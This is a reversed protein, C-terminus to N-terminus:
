FLQIQWDVLLTVEKTISNLPLSSVKFLESDLFDIRYGRVIDAIVLGNKLKSWIGTFLAFQGSTPTNKLYKLSTVQKNSSIYVLCVHMYRLVPFKRKQQHSFQNLYSM